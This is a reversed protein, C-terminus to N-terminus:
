LLLLLAAGVACAVSLVFLAIARAGRVEDYLVVGWLAAVVLNLQTLPMGTADGLGAIATIQGTEAHHAIAKEVDDVEQDSVSHGLEALLARIEDKDITGSKNTDIKAFCTKMENTLRTESKAYWM